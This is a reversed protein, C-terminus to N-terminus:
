KKYGIAAYDMEGFFWRNKFEQDTKEQYYQMNKHLRKIEVNVFDRQELIFQTTDPVLPKIHTPDLYFSFAGVILNEPNPTEFIAVGGPKLVRLVEDFFAIRDAYEIHEILHFGTIAGFKNPNQDRLFQTADMQTVDLGLERCQAVMVTNIDVGLATLGKEKCLELWEGRGCGVDLIPTDATGAQCERIYPLYEKMSSKIDERTGRFRDEFSVYMADFLHDEEKVMEKIQKRAIPKPLRKRAEELLLKLRRQQDLINLRHDHIQRFIEEIDENIHQTEDRGAKQEILESFVDKYRNLKEQVEAKAQYNFDQFKKLGEHASEQLRAIREDREGLAQNVYDALNDIRENTKNKFTKIIDLFEKLNDAQGSIIGKISNLDDGVADFNKNVHSQFAKNRHLSSREFDIHDSLAKPLRIVSLALRSLYGFIPIKFIMQAILPFVLGEVKVKKKRGEPSYRMRGLIEIKSMGNRMRNRFLEMGALDPARGLLLIYSNKIFEEDQFILLDNIHYDGNEKLSLDPYLSIRQLRLPTYGEGIFCHSSLIEDSELVNNLDNDNKKRRALELRIKEITKKVSSENGDKDSHLNRYKSNEDNM